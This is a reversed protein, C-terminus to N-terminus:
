HHEPKPALYDEYISYAVFAGFGIYLGPFLGKFRQAKSFVGQSRWADRKKWSDTFAAM